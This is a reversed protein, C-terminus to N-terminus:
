GERFSNSLCETKLQTFWFGIFTIKHLTFIFVHKYDHIKFLASIFSTWVSISLFVLNRSVIPEKSLIMVVSWTVTFDPGKEQKTNMRQLWSRTSWQRHNSCLANFPSRSGFCKMSDVLHWQEFGGNLHQVCWTVIIIVIELRRFEISDVSWNKWSSM